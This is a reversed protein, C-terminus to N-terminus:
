YPSTEEGRLRPSALTLPLGELSSAVSMQGKVVEGTGQM